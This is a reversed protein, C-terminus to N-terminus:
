SRTGNTGVATRATPPKFAPHTWYHRLSTISNPYLFLWFREGQEVPQLLFPDVIGLCNEQSELPGVHERDATVFGVHQGPVLREAATVPAVAVHIADRQRENEDILNGPTPGVM